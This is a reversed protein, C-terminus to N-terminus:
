FKELWPRVDVDLTWASRHQRTLHHYTEAIADPDLLADPGREDALHAYRESLVQGDVVVQCVHIGKPGLERAMSQCVAKLGFKPMALNVFNASGRNAATASTFIITGKVEDTRRLMARAASRGVLFGGFCGVRWCREFDEAAIDVVAAREFAGANFVVVDPIGFDKEVADFLGLVDAEQGADVAYARARDGLTAMLDAISEPNRCAAAVNYGDAAFRRCVSAGIGPGVGVVVITGPM